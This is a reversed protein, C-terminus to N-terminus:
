FRFPEPPPRPPGPPRSPEPPPYPTPHPLPRFPRRDLLKELFLLRKEFNELKEEIKKIRELLNLNEITM